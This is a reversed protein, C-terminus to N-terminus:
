YRDLGEICFWERHLPFQFLLKPPNRTSFSSSVSGNGIFLSSFTIMLCGARCIGIRICFWERHLSVSGNGIFLSSFSCNLGTSGNWGHHSVSGNGIFLSSFARDHQQWWAGRGPICFWERHLPFQFDHLTIISSRQFGSVSGNGIFLSSFPRSPKYLELLTDLYLVM